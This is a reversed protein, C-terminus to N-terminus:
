AFIENDEKRWEPVIVGNDKFWEQIVRRESCQRDPAEYVIFVPIPEQPFGAYKQARECISEIRKMISNFDLKDLQKRYARLFDCKMPNGGCDIERNGDCLGSCGIGPVLPEARMGLIVGTGSARSITGERSFNRFWKPSSMATSLPLMNASFFRINYFYSTYIKM